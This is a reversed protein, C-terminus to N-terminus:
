WRQNEVFARNKHALSNFKVLLFDDYHEVMKETRMKGEALECEISM